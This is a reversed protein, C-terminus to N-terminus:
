CFIALHNINNSPVLFKFIYPFKPVAFIHTYVAYRQLYSATSLNIIIRLYCSVIDDDTKEGKVLQMM